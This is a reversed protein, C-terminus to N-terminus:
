EKDSTYSLGLEDLVEELYEVAEELAAEEDDTLEDDENISPDSEEEAEDDTEIDLDEAEIIELDEDTPEGEPDGPDDEKGTIAKIFDEITFDPFDKKIGKAVEELKEEDGDKIAKVALRLAEQNAPIPVISFELLEWDNFRWGTRREEGNDDSSTIPELGGEPVSFGISTANLFGGAWLRRVADSGPSTGWPAFQWRARIGKGPITELEMARGVVAEPDSYKHGFLVVPNKKYNELNAGAAVVIDGDRDVAETSILAEFIGVQEDLTKRELLEYTKRKKNKM